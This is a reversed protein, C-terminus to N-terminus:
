QAVLCLEIRNVVLANSNPGAKIRMLLGGNGANVASAVDASYWQYPAVNSVFNTPTTDYDLQTQWNFSGSATTNYSRGYISLTARSISSVGVTSFELDVFDSSDLQLGGSGLFPDVFSPTFGIQYGYAGARWRSKDPLGNVEYSTQAQSGAAIFRFRLATAGQAGSLCPGGTIIGGSGGDFGADVTGGDNGGSGDRGADGAGGDGASGDGSGNGGDRASGDPNTNGTAGDNKDGGAGGDGLAPDTGAGGPCSDCVPAPEADVGPSTACAPAAVLAAAVALLGFHRTAPTV